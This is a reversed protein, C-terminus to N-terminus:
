FIFIGHLYQWINQTVVWMMSQLEPTFSTSKRGSSSSAVASMPSAVTSSMQAFLSIVASLISTNWKWPLVHISWVLYKFPLFPIQLLISPLPEAQLFFFLRHSVSSLKLQHKSYGFYQFCVNIISNLLIRFLVIRSYITNVSVLIGAAQDDQM